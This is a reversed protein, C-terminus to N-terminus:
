RGRAGPSEALRLLPYPRGAADTDSRGSIVFGQALYFNLAATNQENVEVTLMGALSRAHRMLRSGGGRRLWEPALFLAEISHENMVMFGIPTARRDCLVWTDLRELQLARVDPKLADLQQRSLFTHTACVSRWWIDILPERDDPIARRVQLSDSEGPSPGRLQENAPITMIVCRVCELRRM